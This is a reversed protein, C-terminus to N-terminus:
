QNLPRLSNLSTIKTMDFTYEGLFNIHEWGLPSIVPFPASTSCSNQKVFEARQDETLLEKGRSAM